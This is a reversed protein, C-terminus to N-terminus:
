IDCQNELSRFERRVLVALLAPLSPGLTGVYPV